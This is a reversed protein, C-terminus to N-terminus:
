LGSSSRFVMIERGTMRPNRASRQLRSLPMSLAVVPAYTKIDALFQEENADEVPNREARGLGVAQEREDARGCKRPLAWGQTLLEYHTEHAGSCRQM